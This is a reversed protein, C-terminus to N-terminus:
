NGKPQQRAQAVRRQPLVEQPCSLPLHDDAAFDKRMVRDSQITGVVVPRKEARPRWAMSTFPHCKTPHGTAMSRSAAPGACSTSGWPRVSCNGGGLLQETLGHFFPRDADEGCRDLWMADTDGSLWWRLPQVVGRVPWGLTSALRSGGRCPQRVSGITGVGRTEDGSEAGLGSPPPLPVSRRNSPRCLPCVRLLDLGRSSRVTVDALLRETLGHFFPRDGDEGYRDLWM